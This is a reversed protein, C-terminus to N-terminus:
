SSGGVSRRMLCLSIMLRISGWIRGGQSKRFAHSECPRRSGAADERRSMVAPLAQRTTIKCRVWEGRAWGVTYGQSFSGNHDDGYLMWAIGWQSLNSLCHVAMAKQRARSLAPLPSALIAIIAIVVLLEILTFACRRNLTTPSNKFGM